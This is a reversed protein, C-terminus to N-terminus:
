SLPHLQKNYKIKTGFFQHFRNSNINELDFEGCYYSQMLESESFSVIRKLNEGGLIEEPRLIYTNIKSAPIIMVHPSGKHFWNVDISHNLYYYFHDMPQKPNHVKNRNKNLHGLSIYHSYFSIGEILANSITVLNTGTKTDIYFFDKGKFKGQVKVICTLIEGHKSLIGLSLNFGLEKHKSNIELNEPLMLAKSENETLWYPATQSHWTLLLADREMLEYISANKASKFDIHAAFGNSTKFQGFMRNLEQFTKREVFESYAKEIALQYNHDTGFGKEGISDKILFHKLTPSLSNHIVEFRTSPFRETIFQLLDSIQNEM